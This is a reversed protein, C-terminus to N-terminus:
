LFYNGQSDSKIQYILYQLLLNFNENESNQTNIDMVMLLCQNSDKSLKKEIQDDKKL